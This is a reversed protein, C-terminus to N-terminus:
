KEKSVDVTDDLDAANDVIVVETTSDRLALTDM